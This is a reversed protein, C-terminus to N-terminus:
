DGVTRGLSLLSVRVWASLPSRRATKRLLGTKPTVSQPTLITLVM